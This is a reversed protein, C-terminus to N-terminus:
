LFLSPNPLFFLYTQVLSCIDLWWGCILPFVGIEVVVLLSVKVVIYCVGLLRRSRQFRVLAAFGHCLILTM